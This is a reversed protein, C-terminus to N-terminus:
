REFCVMMSCVMQCMGFVNWMKSVGARAARFAHLGQAPHAWLMHMHVAESARGSTTGGASAAAQTSRAAAAQAPRPSDLGNGQVEEPSQQQEAAAEVSGVLPLPALTLGLSTALLNVRANGSLQAGPLSGPSLPATGPIQQDARRIPPRHDDLHGGVAAAAEMVDQLAHVFSAPVSQAQLSAQSKLHLPRVGWILFWVASRGPACHAGANISM